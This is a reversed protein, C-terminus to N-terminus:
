NMMRSFLTKLHHNFELDSVEQVQTIFKMKQPFYGEQRQDLTVLVKEIPSHNIVEWVDMNEVSVGRGDYWVERQKNMIFSREIVLLNQILLKGIEEESLLYRPKAKVGFSQRENRDYLTGKEVLHIKIKVGYREKGNKRWVQHCSIPNM